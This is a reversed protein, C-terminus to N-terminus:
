ADAGGEERELVGVLYGGEDTRRVHVEYRALDELVVPPVTLRWGLAEGTDPDLAREGRDLALVTLIGDLVRGLEEVAGEARQATERQQALERGQDAAKKRWRGLERELRKIKDINREMGEDGKEGGTEPRLLDRAIPCAEWGTERGCYRRAWAALERQHQFTRVHGGECRVEERKDWRFFPCRWVRNSYGQSM